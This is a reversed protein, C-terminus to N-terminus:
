VQAQYVDEEDNEDPLAQGPDMKMHEVLKFCNNCVPLPLDHGAEDKRGIYVGVFQKNRISPECFECM